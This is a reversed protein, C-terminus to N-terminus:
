PSVLLVVAVYGDWVALPSAESFQEVRLRNDWVPETGVHKGHLKALIREKSNRVVRRAEQETMGEPVYLYAIGSVEVGNSEHEEQAQQALLQALRMNDGQM